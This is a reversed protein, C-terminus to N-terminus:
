VKALNQVHSLLHIELLLPSVPAHSVVLHTGVFLMPVVFERLQEVNMLIWAFLVPQQSGPDVFVNMMKAFLM